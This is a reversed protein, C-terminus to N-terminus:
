AEYPIPILQFPLMSKIQRASRTRKKTKRDELVFSGDYRDSVALLTCPEGTDPHKLCLNVERCQSNIIKVLARKQEIGLNEGAASAIGNILAEALPAAASSISSLVMKMASLDVPLQSALSVSLDDLDDLDLHFESPSDM